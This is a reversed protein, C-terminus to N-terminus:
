LMAAFVEDFDITAPLGVARPARTLEPRSLGGSNDTDVQQYFARLGVAAAKAPLVRAAAAAAAAAPEAGAVAAAM